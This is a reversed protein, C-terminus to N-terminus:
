SSGLRRCELHTLERPQAPQPQQPVEAQKQEHQQSNNGDDSQTLQVEDYNSGDSKFELTTSLSKNSQPSDQMAM